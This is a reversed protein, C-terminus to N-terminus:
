CLSHVNCMVEDILDDETTTVGAAAQAARYIARVKDRSAFLGPRHRRAKDMQNWSLHLDNMFQYTEHADFPIVTNVFAQTLGAAVAAQNPSMPVPFPPGTIMSPPGTLSAVAATAAPAVTTSPPLSSSSPLSSSQQQSALIAALPGYMATPPTSSDPALPIGVEKAIAIGVHLPAAQLYDVVRQREVADDLKLRDEPSLQALQEALRKQRKAKQEDTLNKARYAAKRERNKERQRIDIASQSSLRLKGGRAMTGMTALTPLPVLPLPISLPAVAATPALSTPIVSIPIPTPGPILTPAVPTVVTTATTTSLPALSATTMSSAPVSM